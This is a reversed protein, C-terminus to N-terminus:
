AEVRVRETVNTVTPVNAVTPRAKVSRLYRRFLEIFPDGPKSFILAFLVEPSLGYETELQAYLARVRAEIVSEMQKEAFFRPLYMWNEFGASVFHLVMEQISEEMTRTEILPREPAFIAPCSEPGDTLEDAMLRSLTPSCTLGDRYTGTMLWLNSISTRGVIPFGDIAVPRNGVQWKIVRTYYFDENIQEMANKALFACLGLMPETQPMFYLNNTAGIYATRSDRALVHLGCSASRNPTRIITEIPQPPQHCLMSLGVGPMMLPVRDGLGRLQPMLQSTFAGAAILVRGATITSGKATELSEIKGRKENIRVVSDDVLSNTSRKLFASKLASWLKASDISGERPLYLAELARSPQSPKYGPIDKPSCQNHPENQAVLATRIADFNEDDLSGSAANRVVFTGPQIQVNSESPLEANLQELYDPWRRLSDYAIKFREIAAPSAESRNTIEAFVNLMAGSAGTASGAREDPGIVAVSLDPRTANLARATTMALIGNGVIAIDVKM